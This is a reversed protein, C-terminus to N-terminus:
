SPWRASARPVSPFYFYYEFTKTTYPELRLRLSDTPKSAHVSLAGQPIQLLVEAKVPSSTPNTVVINAGYVAGTLFEEAVYKEFKENGQQRYRDGQRFFSQSVLLQGADAKAPAAPKIEKHYVIAAGGATFLFQGGDAKQTHKPADFPLDLVALALMMETFNSSAEAINPSVFAGKAGGAVWAAYDRWFANVTVLNANQQDIPLRYYNNEAWEKTAGIQRYYARVIARAEKAAEGGIFGVEMAPAGNKELGDSDRNAFDSNKLMEARKKLENAGKAKTAAMDKRMEQLQEVSKDDM